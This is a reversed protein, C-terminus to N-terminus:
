DKSNAEARRRQEQSVKAVDFLYGLLSWRPYESPPVAAVAPDSVTIACTGLVVHLKMAPLDGEGQNLITM